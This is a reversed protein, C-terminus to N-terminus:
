EKGVLAFVAELTAIDMAKWHNHNLSSLQRVLSSKRIAQRIEDTIPQIREPRNWKDGKALSTGDSRYRSGTSITIIGRTIATIPYINYSDSLGGRIAVEDGVKLDTLTVTQETM